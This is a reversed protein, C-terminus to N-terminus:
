TKHDKPPLSALRMFRARMDEPLGTKQIADVSPAPLAAVRAKAPTCVGEAPEPQWDEVIAKALGIGPFKVDGKARWARWASLNGELRSLAISAAGTQAHIKKVAQRAHALEVGRAVLERVADQKEPTEESWSRAAPQPRSENSRAVLGPAEFPPAIRKPEPLPWYVRKRSGPLREVYLRGYAVLKEVVKYFKWQKVGFTKMFWACEFFAFGEAKAQREFLRLYPKLDSPLPRPNSPLAASKVGALQAPYVASM